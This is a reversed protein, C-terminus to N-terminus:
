LSIILRGRDAAGSIIANNTIYITYFLLTFAYIWNLVIADIHVKLCQVKPYEVMTAYSRVYKM